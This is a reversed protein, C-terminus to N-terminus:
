VRNIAAQSGFPNQRRYLRWWLKENTEVTVDLQAPWSVHWGNETDSVVTDSSSTVLVEIDKGHPQIQVIERESLGSVLVTWDEPANSSTLAM